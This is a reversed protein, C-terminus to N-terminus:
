IFVSLGPRAVMVPGDFKARAELAGQDLGIEEWRHAIILTRAQSNTALQAAEGATMHHRESAPQPSGEPETAESVLLTVGRLFETLNASPGTDATYGLDGGSRSSVRMAWAPVSHVTPGFAISFSGITLGDSPEYEAIEFVAELFEPEDSSGLAATWASFRERTEPPIWLPIKRQIPDPNYKGLYRLAGIDLIHDLHYHSIVIADISRFDVHKRLELLTGPGLDIVLNTAGDTLLFGACGAGTNGGAASGGLVVVKM